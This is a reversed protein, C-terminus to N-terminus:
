WPLARSDFDPVCRLMAIRADERRQEKLYSVIIQQRWAEYDEYQRAGDQWLQERLVERVTAIQGFELYARAKYTEPQSKFQDPIDVPLGEIRILM